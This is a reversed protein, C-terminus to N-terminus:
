FSKGAEIINKHRLDKIEISIANMRQSIARWSEKEEASLSSKRNAFSDQQTKLNELETKLSILKKKDDTTLYKGDEM